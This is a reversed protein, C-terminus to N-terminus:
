DKNQSFSPFFYLFGNESSDSSFYFLFFSLFKSIQLIKLSGIEADEAIASEFPSFLIKTAARVFDAFLLVNWIKRCNIQMYSHLLYTSSASSRREFSLIYFIRM